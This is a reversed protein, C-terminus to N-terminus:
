NLLGWWRKKAPKPAFQLQITRDDAGFLSDAYVADIREDMSRGLSDGDAIVLGNRLLYIVINQFRNRLDAPEEPADKTEVEMLGLHALGTTCGNSVGEGSWGTRVNVWLHCVFTEDALLEPTVETFIGAPLVHEAPSWLVGLAGDVTTVIASTLLTLLRMVDAPEQIGRAVAIVHSDHPRLTAEADAWFDSRECYGQVEDWPMPADIVTAVLLDTENGDWRVSLTGDEVTVQVSRHEPPWCTRIHREVAAADFEPAGRFMIMSHSITM